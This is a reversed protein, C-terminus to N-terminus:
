QQNAMNADENMTAGDGSTKKVKKKKKKKGKKQGLGNPTEGTNM